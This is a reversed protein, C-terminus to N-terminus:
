VERLQFTISAFLGDALRVQRVSKVEGRVSVASSDFDGVAAVEPLPTQLTLAGAFVYLQPAWDDPVAYPLVLLEDVELQSAGAALTVSAGAVTFSLWSPPSGTLVGDVWVAGDSRRVVYHTWPGSAVSAWLAVTEVAGFRLTYTISKTSPVKLEGGGLVGGAQVIAANSPNASFARGGRSYHTPTGDPDDFTWSEGEGDILGCFARATGDTVALPVTEFQWARLYGAVGRRSRGTTQSRWDAGVPQMEVGPDSDALVPIAIGNLALYAM